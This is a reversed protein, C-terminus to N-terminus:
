LGIIQVLMLAAATLALAAAGAALTAPRNANRHASTALFVVSGISFLMILILAGNM